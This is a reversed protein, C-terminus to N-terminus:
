SGIYELTRPTFGRVYIVTLLRATLRDPINVVGGDATMNLKDESEHLSYRM